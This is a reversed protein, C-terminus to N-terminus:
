IHWLELYEYIIIFMVSDQIHTLICNHFQVSYELIRLIGPKQTHLCQVLNQIHSFLTRHCPESYTQDVNWMIKFLSETRFISRESYPMMIQIFQSVNWFEMFHCDLLRVKKWSYNMSQKGLVPYNKTFNVRVVSSKRVASCSWTINKM